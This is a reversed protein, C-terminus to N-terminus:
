RCDDGCYIQKTEVSGHLWGRYQDLAPGSTLKFIHQVQRGNPSILLSEESVRTDSYKVVQASVIKYGPEASFSLNYPRTHTGILNPHEENTENVAYSKSITQPPTFATPMSPDILGGTSLTYAGLIKNKAQNIPILHNIGQVQADIYKLGGQFIRAKPVGGVAVAVVAGDASFAPGGSNGPNLPSETVWRNKEALKNSLIGSVISLSYNLPFGLVYLEEGVQPLNSDKIPLPSIRTESKLKILALDADPDRDIVEFELPMTRENDTGLFAQRKMTKYVNSEPVVHSCTIALGSEAIVFGTGSSIEKEGNYLEGVSQLQIISASSKAVIQVGPSSVASFSVSPMAFIIILWAFFMHAPPM